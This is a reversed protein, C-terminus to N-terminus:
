KVKKSSKKESLPPATSEPAEVKAPPLALEPEKEVPELWAEGKYTEPLDIIDGPYHTIGQTDTFGSVGGKGKKLKFKL